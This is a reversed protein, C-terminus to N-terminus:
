LDRLGDMSAQMWSVQASRRDPVVAASSSQAPDATGLADRTNRLVMLVYWRRPASTTVKLNPLHYFTM